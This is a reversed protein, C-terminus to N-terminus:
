NGIEILLRYKGEGFPEGLELPAANSIIWNGAYHPPSQASDASVELLKIVRLILPTLICSRPHCSVLTLSLHQYFSFHSSSLYLFLALPHYFNQRFPILRTHFANLFQLFLAYLRASTSLHSHFPFHSWIYHQGSTNQKQSACDMENFSERCDM